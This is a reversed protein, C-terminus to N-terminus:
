SLEQNSIRGNAQLAAIIQRNKRDM